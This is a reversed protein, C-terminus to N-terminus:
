SIKLLLSSRDIFRFLVTNLPTLWGEPLDLVRALFDDRNPHPQM